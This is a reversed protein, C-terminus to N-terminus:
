LRELAEMLGDPRTSFLLKMKPRTERACNMIEEFVVTYDKMGRLGYGIVFADFNKSQLTQRLEDVCSDANKMWASAAVGSCCRLCMRLVFWHKRQPRRPESASGDDRLGSRADEETRVRDEAASRQCRTRAHLPRSRSYPNIQGNYQSLRYGSEVPYINQQFKPSDLDTSNSFSM